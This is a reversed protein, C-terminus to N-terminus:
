EVTPELSESSKTKSQNEPPKRLVMCLAGARAARKLPNKREFSARRAIVVLARVLATSPLFIAHMAYALSSDWPQGPGPVVTAAHAVYNTLFFILVDYWQAPTCLLNPNGHDTSGQPLTINSTM